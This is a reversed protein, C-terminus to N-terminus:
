TRHKVCEHTDEHEIVDRKHGDEELRSCFQTAEPENSRVILSQSRVRESCSASTVSFGASVVAGLDETYANAASGDPCVM